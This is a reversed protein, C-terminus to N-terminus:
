RRVRERRVRTTWREGDRSLEVILDESLPGTLSTRAGELSRAPRANIRLLRDGPEIGAVEAESGPPVMMVVVVRGGQETREGLTVALSGSGKPERVRSPEGPLVLTVRSTTRGARVDVREVQGRGRDAAYAELTVAGEPLGGLVFRGRKDTAVIGPPLPGLPLYSPVADMAVRAGAIPEDREDVVTGEVSGARALDIPKLDVGRRPEDAVADIVEARAHDPHTVVVRVRGPAVDSLAFAGDRDTKAHRAGTAAYVTVDAGELRDRGDNGTVEGRLEIGESLVVDLKAPAAEVTTVKPAKTPRALTLRLPLGVADVLEAEGDDSTFLTRLLPVSQDLSIAHIEVRGLAYGRDDTVRVLVTDRRKPLVIELEKREGEGVRVVLRAAVSAPDDPRAVSVLVEDPTSAFAFTGDDAAYGVRVLSGKTASLEIRAGAVPTRDEELIRGELLGGQRLVVRVSAAAGAGLTVLESLGEVYAPHRVLAQVRGPAIPAARFTGDARTVWPEGGPAGGARPVALSSLAGVDRLDRPLDPVPGLTVGLEGAPMLPRPGGLTFAFHEDQFERRQSTESIPMGDTAVGIIEITAGAVPYGRDDVVEGVVAGGRSLALKVARETAGIAVAASVFGPARASVTVVGDGVPGLTAVGSPDTKAQRPFPSVGDEVVLVSAGAIPPADEEAGDTVTVTVLRGPRLALRVHKTEAHKLPVAIETPSLAQGLRAELDYSGARLRRLEVRGAADTVASRAPWLGPGVAVVEAKPAPEGEADVVTVVLSGLRELRVRLRGPQAVTRVVDDYGRAAVRVDYPGRGLREFSAKGSASTTEAWPLPDRATVVVSAGALPQDAGDVVEVDLRAAPRVVVILEREGADLVLRASTRARGAGYVMVWAEGRPLGTFSARGEANAAVEGAFHAVDASLAFVRVSAGTVPHGMEDKVVVVLGADREGLDALRAASPAALSALRTDSLGAVFVLCILAALLAILRDLPRHPRRV